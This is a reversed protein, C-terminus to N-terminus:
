AKLEARKKAAAEAADLSPYGYSKATSEAAMLAMNRGEDRLQHIWQDYLRLTRESYSLLEGSLYAEFSATRTRAAEQTLPRGGARMYPYRRDVEEEWSLQMNVIQIVLERKEQTIQPLSSRIAAFEEPHTWSMMWAYKETLLNRGSREADALDDRYSELLPENWNEFQCVRMKKFFIPDQQCDAKGGVNHVRSFMEWERACIDDIIKQKDM